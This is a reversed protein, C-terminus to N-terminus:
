TSNLEERRMWGRHVGMSTSRQHCDVSVQRSNARLERGAEDRINFGSVIKGAGDAWDMYSIANADEWNAVRV